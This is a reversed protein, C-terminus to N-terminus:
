IWTLDSENREERSVVTWGTLEEELIVQFRVEAGDGTSCVQAVGEDRSWQKLGDQAGQRQEQRVITNEQYVLAMQFKFRTM